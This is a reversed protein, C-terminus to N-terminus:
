QQTRYRLPHRPHRHKKEAHNNIINVVVILAPQNHDILFLFAQCHDNNDNDNDHKNHVIIFFAQNHNHNRCYDNNDYYHYNHRNDNRGHNYGHDFGAHGADRPDM